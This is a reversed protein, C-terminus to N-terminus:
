LDSDTTRRVKEVGRLAARESKMLTFIGMMKKLRMEILLPSMEVASKTGQPTTFPPRSSQPKELRRTMSPAAWRGFMVTGPLMMKFEEPVIWDSPRSM